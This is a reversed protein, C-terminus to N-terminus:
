VLLLPITIPILFGRGCEELVANDNTESWSMISLSLVITRLFFGVWHGYVIIIPLTALSLALGVLIWNFWKADTGKKKFYTSLAGWTLGFVLILIWHWAIIYGLMLVSLLSCGVDRYYTSYGSAGGMRYACSSIISALIIVFYIM